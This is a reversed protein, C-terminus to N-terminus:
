PKNHTNNEEGCYSETLALGCFRKGSKMYDDCNYKGINQAVGLLYKHLRKFVPGHGEEGDDRYKFDASHALEHIHVRFLTNDSNWQSPDYKSRLCTEIMMGKDSNSGVTKDSPNHYEAFPTFKKYHRRVLQKMNDTIDVGDEAKIRKSADLQEDISQLLYQSRTNIEALKDAARTKDPLDAAVFYTNGDRHSKVRVVKSKGKEAGGAMTPGQGAGGGTVVAAVAHKVDEASFKEQGSPLIGAYRRREQTMAATRAAVGAGAGAGAMVRQREVGMARKAAALNDISDRRFHPDSYNAKAKESALKTNEMLFYAAGFAACVFVIPPVASEMWGGEGGGASAEDEDNTSVLYTPTAM